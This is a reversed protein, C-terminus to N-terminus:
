PFTFTVPAPDGTTVDVDASKIVGGSNVVITYVGTPVSTDATFGLPAGGAFTARVAAGTSLTYALDGTSANVPAAAVVVTPGGAYRKVVRVSADVPTTGTSVTGTATHPTSVPPNIPAGSTNLDTSATNSVPVGTIVAPVRGLASIVVDYTGAPVPYLVFHGSSDPVTSRVLASNSQVSIRTTSLELGTSVFGTIRQGTASLRPLISYRPSLDYNDTLGLRLVSECSQFDLVFDSIQDKAIGINVAVKLGSQLTAPSALAVEARGVPTVSNALPNAGDNAALVLSMQRYQGVPLTVQGLEAVAGNNLSLLDIRQAPALVVESWGPDADAAASNPHVRVKQVTVYVHDYGCGPSATLALKLIGADTVVIPGGGATGGGGGGCAVLLAALALSLFKTYRAILTM